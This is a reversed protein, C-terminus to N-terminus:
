KDSMQFGRFSGTYPLTKAGEEKSAESGKTQSDEGEGAEDARM